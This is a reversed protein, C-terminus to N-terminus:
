PVTNWLHNLIVSITEFIDTSEIVLGLSGDGEQTIFAVKGNYAFVENKFPFDEASILKTQRFTFKDKSKLDRYFPIDPAIVKVHNGKKVRREVYEGSWYNIIKEDPLKTSLAEIYDCHRSLIDEYIEKIGEVGQYIRVSPKKGAHSQISLLQGMINHLASEKQKILPFINQPDEVIYIKRKGKLVTKILGKEKLSDVLQYVTARKLKASNVLEQMTAPGTQLGALYLTSEKDSLGIKQLNQELNM